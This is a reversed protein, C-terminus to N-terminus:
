FAGHRSKKPIKKQIIKEFFFFFFDLLAIWAKMDGRYHHYTVPLLFRTRKADDDGKEGLYYSKHTVLLTVYTLLM